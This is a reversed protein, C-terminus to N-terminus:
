TELIYDFGIGTAVSDLALTQPRESAPITLGFRAPPM